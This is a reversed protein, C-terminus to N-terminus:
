RKREYQLSDRHFEWQEENTDINIGHKRALTLLVSNHEQKATTLAHMLKSKLIEFEELQQGLTAHLSLVRQEAAELTKRDDASLEVRTGVEHQTM